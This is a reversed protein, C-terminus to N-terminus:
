LNLIKVTQADKISRAGEKIIEDGVVIGSLV